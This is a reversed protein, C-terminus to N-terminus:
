PIPIGQHVIITTVMVAKDADKAIPNLSIVLNYATPWLVNSKNGSLLLNCDLKPYTGMIVTNGPLHIDNMNQSTGNIGSPLTQHYSGNELINM